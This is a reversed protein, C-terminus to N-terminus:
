GGPEAQHGPLQQDFLAMLDYEVAAVPRAGLSRHGVRRARLRDNDAVQRLNRLRSRDGVLDVPEATEIGHDV